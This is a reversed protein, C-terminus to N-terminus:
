DYNAEIKRVKREAFKKRIDFSISIIMMTIYIAFLVGTIHQWNALWETVNHCVTIIVGLISPELYNNNM